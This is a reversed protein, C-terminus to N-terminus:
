SPEEQTLADKVELSGFTGMLLGVHSQSLRHGLRMVSPTLVQTEHRESGQAATQWTPGSTFTFKCPLKYPRAYYCIHLTPHDSNPTPLLRSVHPRLPLHEAASPLPM